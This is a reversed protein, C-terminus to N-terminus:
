IGLWYGLQVGLLFDKLGDLGTRIMAIDRDPYKQFWDRCAGPKVVKSVLSAAQILGSVLLTWRIRVLSPTHIAGVKTPADKDYSFSFM